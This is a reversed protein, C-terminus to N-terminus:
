SAAATTQLKKSALAVIMMDIYLNTTKNLLISHKVLLSFSGKLTSYRSSTAMENTQKSPLIM